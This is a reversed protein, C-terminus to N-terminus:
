IFHIFKSSSDNICDLGDKTFCAYTRREEFHVKVPLQAYKNPSIFEVIGIGYVKHEVRDGVKIKRKRKKITKTTKM